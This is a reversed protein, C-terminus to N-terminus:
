LDLMYQEEGQNLPKDILEYDPTKTNSEMLDLQEQHESVSISDRLMIYEGKLHGASDFKEHVVLLKALHQYRRAMKDYLSVKGKALKVLGKHLLISLGDRNTATSNLTDWYINEYETHIFIGAEEADVEMSRATQHPAVRFEEGAQNTYSSYPELGRRENTAELYINRLGDNGDLTCADGVFLWRKEPVKDKKPNEIVPPYCRRGLTRIEYWVKMAPFAEESVCQVSWIFDVAVLMQPTVFQFQADCLRENAPTQEIEGAWYKECHEEARQEEEVDITILYSLLNKRMALNYNDPRCNIYGAKSLTQGFVTRKSMDYQTDFLYNRIANIGKLHGYAAPDNNILAEMSRDTKGSVTCFGCGYRAGCASKKGGDGVIVACTGENGDRYIDLTWEFDKRFTKIFPVGRTEDISMLLSWVDVVSWDAIPANTLFGNKDTVISTATEGREIMRAKRDASEDLRTGILSVHNQKGGANKIIEKLMKQQPKIKYDVTCQREKSDVFMPMRGRGVTTYVFSSTLAPYAVLVEMSIGSMEETDAYDRLDQIMYQSYYGMAPNEIQTDSHTIYFGNIPIGAKKARKVAELALVLVSMSDKGFSVSVSLSKGAKILDLITLIAAESKEKIESYLDQVTEVPNLTIFEPKFEKVVANM